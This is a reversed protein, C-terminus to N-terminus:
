KKNEKEFWEKVKFDTESAPKKFIKIWADNSLYNIFQEMHNIDAHEAGYYPTFVRAKSLMTSVEDNTYTGERDEKNHLMEAIMYLILEKHKLNYIEEELQQIKESQLFNNHTIKDKEKRYLFLASHLTFFSVLFVVVNFSIIEFTTWDIDGVIYKYDQILVLTILFVVISGLVTITEYRKELAKEEEIM